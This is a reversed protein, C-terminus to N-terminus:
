GTVARSERYTAAACQHITVPRESKSASILGGVGVVELAGSVSASTAAPASTALMPQPGAGWRRSGSAALALPSASSLSILVLRAAACVNENAASSRRSCTVASPFLVEFVAVRRTVMRRGLAKAKVPFPSAPSTAPQYSPLCSVM